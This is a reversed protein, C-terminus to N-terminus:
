RFRPERDFLEDLSVEYFDAIKILMAYSMERLGLEYLSYSSRPIDLIQSLKDQTLNKELRLEKLKIKM